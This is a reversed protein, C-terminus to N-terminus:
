GPCGSGARTQSRTASLHARLVQATEYARTALMAADPRLLRKSLLRAARPAPLEARRHGGPDPPWNLGGLAPLRLQVNGM